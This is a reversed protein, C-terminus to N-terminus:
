VAGGHELQSIEPKGLLCDQLVRELRRAVGRVIHGRLNQARLLVVLRTVDPGQPDDHVYQSYRM